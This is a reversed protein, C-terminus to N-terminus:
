IKRLVIKKPVPGMEPLYTYSACMYRERLVDVTSCLLRVTSVTDCVTQVTDRECLLLQPDWVDM